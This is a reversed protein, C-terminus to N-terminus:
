AKGTPRPFGSGTTRKGKGKGKGKGGGFGGTPSPGAGGGTPFPLPISGTPIPLTLSGTPFPLGTTKGKGKGGGQPAALTTTAAFLLALLSFKM